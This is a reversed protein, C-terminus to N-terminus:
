GGDEAADGGNATRKVVLGPMSSVKTMIREGVSVVGNARACARLLVLRRGKGVREHLLGHHCWTTSIRHELPMFFFLLSWASMHTKCSLRDM